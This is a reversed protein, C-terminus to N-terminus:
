APSDTLVDGQIESRPQPAKGRAFTAAPMSLVLIGTCMLV